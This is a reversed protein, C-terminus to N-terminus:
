RAESANQKLFGDRPTVPKRQDSETKSVRPSGQPSKGGKEVSRKLPDHPRLRILAAPGTEFKSVSQKLPARGGFTAPEVFLESGPM